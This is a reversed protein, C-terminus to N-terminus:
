VRESPTDQHHLFVRGIATKAASSAMINSTRVDGAQSLLSVAADLHGLERELEQRNPLATRDHPNVSDWGHRQIKTIAQIVEACEEVLKALREDEAATLGNFPVEYVVDLPQLGGRFRRVLERVQPSTCVPCEIAVHGEYACTCRRDRRRGEGETSM